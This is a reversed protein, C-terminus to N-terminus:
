ERMRKGFALTAVLCWGIVFSLGGSPVIAWHGMKGLFVMSYLGGSFLGMGLIFFVAALGRRRQATGSTLLGLPLLALSHLMHYRVAIECQELREEIDSSELGQDTLSAELGHAAYAGLMVGVAGSLGAVVVIWRIM